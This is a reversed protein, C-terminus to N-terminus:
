NEVGSAESEADGMELEEGDDDNSESETGEESKNDSQGQVEEDSKESESSYASSEVSKESRKMPPSPPDLVGTTFSLRKMRMRLAARTRPIQKTTNLVELNSM